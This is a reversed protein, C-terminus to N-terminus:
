SERIYFRRAREVGEKKKLRLDRCLKDEWQSIYGRWDYRFPVDLQGDVIKGRYVSVQGKEWSGDVDVIVCFSKRCALLRGLWGRDWRERPSDIRRRILLSWHLYLHTILPFGEVQVNTETLPKTDWISGIHAYLEDITLELRRVKQRLSLPSKNWRGGFDSCTIRVPQVWVWRHLAETLEAKYRKFVYLLPHPYNGEPLDDREGMLYIRTDLRKRIQLKLDAFVHKWVM